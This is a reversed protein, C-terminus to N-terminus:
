AHCVSIDRGGGCCRFCYDVCNKYDDAPQYLVCYCYSSRCCYDYNHRYHRVAGNKKQKKEMSNIYNCIIMEAEKIIYDKSSAKNETNVCTETKYKLSKAVSNSKFIVFAEEVLNSPLNKLIVMNKMQSKEM